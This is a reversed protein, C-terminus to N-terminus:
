VEETSEGSADDVPPEVPHIAQKFYKHARKELLAFMAMLDLKEFLQAPLKPLIGLPMMEMASEARQLAIFAGIHKDFQDRPNCLAWGPYIMEDDGLVAVLVGKKVYDETRKDYDYVYQRLFPKPYNIVYQKANIRNM